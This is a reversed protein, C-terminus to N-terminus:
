VDFAVGMEFPSATVREGSVSGTLVEEIQEVKFAM